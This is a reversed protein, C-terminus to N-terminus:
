EGTPLPAPVELDCLRRNEPNDFFALVRALFEKEIEVSNASGKSTFIIPDAERAEEGQEDRLWMRSIRVSEARVEFGVVSEEPITVCYGM